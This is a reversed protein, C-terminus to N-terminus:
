EAFQLKLITGIYQGDGRVVMIYKGDPIGDFDLVGYGQPTPTLEPRYYVEKGQMYYEPWSRYCIIDQTCEYEVLTTGYPIGLTVTDDRQLGYYDSTFAIENSYDMRLLDTVTHVLEYESAAKGNIYAVEYYKTGEHGKYNTALYYSDKNERPQIRGYGYGLEEAYEDGLDYSSVRIGYEEGQVPYLLVDCNGDWAVAVQNNGTIVPIRDVKRNELYFMDYYNPGNFTSGSEASYGGQPYEDFSNDEYVLYFGNALDEATYMGILAKEEIFDETNDIAGDNFDNETEFEDDQQKDIDVDDISQNFPCNITGDFNMKYYEQADFNKYILWDGLINIGEISRSNNLEINDSGDLNMRHIIETEYDIYFIYEDSVNLGSRPNIGEYVINETGDLNMSCLIDEDNEYYVRDETVILHSPCYDFLKITDNSNLDIRWTGKQLNEEEGFSDVASTVYLYDGQLVMKTPSIDMLKTYDNSNDVNVRYVGKELNDVVHSLYYYKGDTQFCYHELYPSINLEECPMGEIYKYYKCNLEDFYLANGLYFLKWPDLDGIVLADEKGDELRVKRLGSNSYYIWEGDTTVSEINQINNAVIRLEEHEAESSACANWLCMIVSLILVSLIKKM